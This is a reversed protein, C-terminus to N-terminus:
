GEDEVETVALAAVEEALSVEYREVGVFLEDELMKKLLEGEGSADAILVKEIFVKEYKGDNYFSKLAHTIRTYYRRVGHEKARVRDGTREPGPAQSDIDVVLAPEDDGSITDYEGFLLRKEKFVAAAVFTEGLLLYLAPEAAVSSAFYNYLLSFPSFIFDLGTAEYSERIQYLSEDSAFVSWDGELCRTQCSTTDAYRPFEQASCTPVAGQSPLTDLVAIYHLPSQSAAEAICSLAEEGLTPTDFTHLSKKLTRGHKRTEVFVDTANKGVAVAIYVKRYFRELLKSPKM